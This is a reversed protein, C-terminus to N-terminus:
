QEQVSTSQLKIPHTDKGFVEVAVSTGKQCPASLFAQAALAGIQSAVTVAMQHSHLKNDTLSATDIAVM